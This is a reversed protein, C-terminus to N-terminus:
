FLSRFFDVILSWGGALLLLGIAVGILIKKGTQASFMFVIGAVMLVVAAIEFGIDPLSKKAKQLGKANGTNSNNSNEVPATVVQQQNTTSAPPTVVEQQSTTVPTETTDSANAALSWAPMTLLMMFVILMSIVVKRM